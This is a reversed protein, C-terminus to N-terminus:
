VVWLLIGKLLLGLVKMILGMLVRFHMADSFELLLEFVGILLHLYYRSDDDLQEPNWWTAGAPVHHLSTIPFGVHAPELLRTNLHLHVISNLVWHQM